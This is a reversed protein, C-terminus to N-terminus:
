HYGAPGSLNLPFCSPKKTSELQLKSLVENGKLLILYSDDNLKLSARLEIGPGSLPHTCSFLEASLQVPTQHKRLALNVPNTRSSYPRLQLWSLLFFILMDPDNSDLVILLTISRVYCMKVCQFLMM